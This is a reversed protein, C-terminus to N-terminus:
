FTKYLKLKLVPFNRQLKGYGYRNMKEQVSSMFSNISLEAPPYNFNQEAEALMILDSILVSKLAIQFQLSFMFTEQGFTSEVRSALRFAVAPLLM